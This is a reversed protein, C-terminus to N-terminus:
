GIHGIRVLYNFMRRMFHVLITYDKWEKIYIKLLLEEDKNELETLVNTKIHRTLKEKYYEHLEKAKDMEDCIKLVVSCIGTNTM